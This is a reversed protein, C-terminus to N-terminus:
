RLENAGSRGPVWIRTPTTGAGTPWEGTREIEHFRPTVTMLMRAGRISPAIPKRRVRNSSHALCSADTSTIEVLWILTEIVSSPTASRGPSTYSKSCSPSTVIKSFRAITATTPTPRRPVLPSAARSKLASAGILTSIIEWPADSILTVSTTSSDSPGVATRSRCWSNKSESAAQHSDGHDAGALHAGCDRFRRDARPVGHRDPDAACLVPALLRQGRIAQSLC